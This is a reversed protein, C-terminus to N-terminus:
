LSSLSPLGKGSIILTTWCNLEIQSGEEECNRIHNICVFGSTLRCIRIDVLLDQHRWVFGSTWRGGTRGLWQKCLGEWERRRPKRLKNSSICTDALTRYFSTLIKTLTNKLTKKSLKEFNKLLKKFTRDFETYNGGLNHGTAPWLVSWISFAVAPSILGM